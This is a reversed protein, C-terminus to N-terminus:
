LVVKGTQCQTCIISFYYQRKDVTMEAPLMHRQVYARYDWVPRCLSVVRASPLVGTRYALSPELVPNARIWLLMIIIGLEL